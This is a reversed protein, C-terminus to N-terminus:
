RGEQYTFKGVTIVVAEYETSAIPQPIWGVTMPESVAGAYLARPNDSFADVIGDALTALRTMTEENIAVNDVLVIDQEGSWMRLGADHVLQIRTDGVYACPLAGFSGPRASHTQQLLTPNAALYADLTTKAGIRISSIIGM